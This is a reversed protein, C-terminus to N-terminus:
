PKGSEMKPGNLRWMYEEGVRSCRVDFGRRRLDAARSHVMLGHRYLVRHSVGDPNEQLLRLLRESHSEPRDFLGIQNSAV